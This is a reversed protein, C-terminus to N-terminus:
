KSKGWWLLLTLFELNSVWWFFISPSRNKSRYFNLFHFSQLFFSSAIQSAIVTGFRRKSLILKFKTYSFSNGQKRWILFTKISLGGVKKALLPTCLYADEWWCGSHSYRRVAFCVKHKWVVQTYAERWLNTLIYYGTKFFGLFISAKTSYLLVLTFIWPSPTPTQIVPLELGSPAYRM